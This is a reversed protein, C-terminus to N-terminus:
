SRTPHQEGGHRFELPLPLLVAVELEIALLAVQHRGGDGPHVEEQMANLVKV